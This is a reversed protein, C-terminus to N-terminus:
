LREKLFRYLRGSPLGMVTYFDGHLNEIFRAGYGQIGYGGAKDLPEGTAVYDDIEDDTLPSFTVEATDAFGDGRTGDYLWVATVVKHTRGSLARLMRKADIEDAPKGLIQGDLVVATDAGLVAQDPHLAAIEQAKGRAVRLIADEVTLTPDPTPESQAPLVTFTLGLQECIERRRPSASALIMAKM